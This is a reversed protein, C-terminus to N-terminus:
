ESVKVVRLRAVFHLLWFVILSIFLNYVFAILNLSALRMSFGNTIGLVLWQALFWILNALVLSIMMAAKSEAEFPKRMESIALGILLFMLPSLGFFSPLTTDYMVMIIFSVILAMDRPRSWILFVAWPLLINPIWGALSFLPMLMVQIYLFFLGLLWSWLYKFIM